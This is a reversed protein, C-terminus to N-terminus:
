KRHKIGVAIGKSIEYGLDKSYVEWQYIEFWM